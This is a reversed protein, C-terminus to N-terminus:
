DADPLVPQPSPKLVVCFIDGRDSEIMEGRGMDQFAKILSAGKDAFGNRNVYIASFGYSELKGVAASLQLQGLAKQWEERPRGKDSGFSFRLQHSYLYPRLHDYSGIGPAPSEPFEMIPIQFVMANPPLREEMKEVFGRDSAVAQATEDLQASTVMPPTQDWWAIALGLVAAGYVLFTNRAKVLSLRRVAYMLVICLIFITYRTTARFFQFGLSGMIGNIGGVSAYILIWLILYTEFPLKERDVARRLSVIVLWAMAGLGLLGLYGAPPWEGPALLVEKVHGAGYWAFPPFPHDTPPVVLDIIKLGYVELWHYDRTVVRANDGYAFHYLFTNLNMFVFAAAATALVAAAPLSERWGRRWGQLLGGFLVFQAFLNTYYVSQMGTVFAVLLAFVFRPEGLKIGERRIVWEGVVLCLPVHWYYLVSLHHLGHAFAYRAFAFAFGGAFSWIWSGNVIRCATYFSLAALVQGVLVAVNAAAFVGMFGALLGTAWILPKETIPYDDWNAVYPAGLEPINTFLFPHFHGDRAARVGALLSLVDGKEPDSLYTLPTQWSEVTWRDYTACWVLGVLVALLAARMIDPGLSKGNGISFFKGTHIM